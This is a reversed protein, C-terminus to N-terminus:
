WFPFDNDISKFKPLLNPFNFGFFYVIKAALKSLIIQRWFFKKLAKNYALFDPFYELLLNAATLGWIVGGGSWPKTLGAADGCLTAFRDHPIVLGQPIIASKIEIPSIKLRFCFEDFDKRATRLDGLLGCEINEGQPIKWFFGNKAPWVEFKQSWDRAPIFGQIGLRFKPDSLGLKRRCASLVGDCGIIRDFGEPFRDVPCDLIIRAGAERALDATLRDLLWHEMLFFPYKFGLEVTKRPFYVLCSSLKHRILDQSQPIFGLLRSSFLGSCVEKGIEGRKEFITVKHGKQALRWALYLGNIGAGIIAVRM